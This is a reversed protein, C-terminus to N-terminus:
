LTLKTIVADNGSLHSIQDIGGSTLISILSPANDIKLTSGGTGSWLLVKLHLSVPICTLRSHLAYLRVLTSAVTQRIENVTSNSMVLTHLINMDGISTIRKCNSIDLHLLSVMFEAPLSSIKTNSAHLTHLKNGTNYSGPILRILDCNSINLIELDIFLNGPPLHELTYWNSVITKVGKFYGTYVNNEQENAPVSSNEADNMSSKDEGIIEVQHSGRGRHLLLNYYQFLVM